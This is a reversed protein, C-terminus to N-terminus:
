AAIKEDSDLVALEADRLIEYAEIAKAKVPGFGRVESPAAALRISASLRAPTMGACLEDIMALYEAALRREDRREASYGFPDLM